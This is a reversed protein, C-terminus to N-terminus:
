HFVQRLLLSSEKMQVVSLWQVVWIHRIYSRLIFHIYLIILRQLQGLVCGCTAVFSTITRSMHMFKVRPGTMKRKNLLENGKGSYNCKTDTYCVLLMHTQKCMAHALLGRKVYIHSAHFSLVVFFCVGAICIICYRVHLM